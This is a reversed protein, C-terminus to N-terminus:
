AQQCWMAPLYPDETRVCIGSGSSGPRYISCSTNLHNRLLLPRHNVAPLANALEACALALGKVIFVYCLQLLENGLASLNQRAANGAAACLMLPHQGNCDLAGSM